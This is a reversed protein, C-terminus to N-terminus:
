AANNATGSASGTGSANSQANTSNTGTNTGTGTNGTTGAANTGTGSGAANPHDAKWKELYAAFDVTALPIGNADTGSFEVKEGNMTITVADAVWTAFSWTGNVDVTEKVPGTLMGPTETGNNTIVAYIEKGSAVQYEVKVSTPAVEVPAVQQQQGQGEEGQTTDTIGSVPVAPADNQGGGKNGFAFVLVLVLVVLVVVGAIIFPLKSQVAGPAKPGAYFNTYQSNPLASHRSTHTRGESYLRGHGASSGDRQGYDPRSFATRDDYLKRGFANERPAREDMEDRQAGRQTRRARPADGMDFGSPRVDSRARGVQYAYAEDLYMRTIETPNLGLLRAYANVMNRTYGRPPMRAFDNNEIARLIDPRIRLRRAATSLDYGKRERADQLVSGFTLGAM